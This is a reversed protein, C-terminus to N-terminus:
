WSSTSKGSYLKTTKETNPCTKRGWRTYVAGGTVGPTGAEGPPGRPGTEGQKGPPGILKFMSFLRVDLCKIFVLHRSNCSGSEM